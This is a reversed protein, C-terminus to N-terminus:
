KQCVLVRFAGLSSRTFRQSPDLTGNVIRMVDKDEFCIEMHYKWVAFKDGNFVKLPESEQKDM